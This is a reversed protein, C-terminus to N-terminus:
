KALQSLHGHNADCKLVNFIYGKQGLIACALVTGQRTNLFMGKGMYKHVTISESGYRNTHPLIYNPLHVLQKSAHTHLTNEYEANSMFNTCQREWGKMHIAPQYFSNASSINKPLIIESWRFLHSFKSKAQSFKNLNM